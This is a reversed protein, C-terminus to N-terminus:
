TSIPQSYQKVTTYVRHLPLGQAKAIRRCAEYEPIITVGAPTTIKKAEINGWPTPVLVTERPLTTRYERRFRLGTASTQSFIITKLGHTTAPECIVRLLFGPRGKKMQINVLSVDLAGADMLLESVHPWLEPNWDDIHTEIIDVQQAEAIDVIEGIMLRLLNPRGDERKITGAGYGTSELTMAPMPGFATAMEKVLAAGTPTVLEQELSEGYVPIGKLLSCVAPGPLPIMGHECSVWGRGLPLPACTLTEIGLYDFGAVVGVIDLIADVAGVEHFHVQEPTTGHVEAEAAALAQFVQYAKTTIKTDLPAQELLTHIDSLHRHAKQQELIIRVTSSAFGHSTARSIDLRYGSLDLQSFLENFYARPVGCELLAGLLMNGSVGSFCDLYAIKM